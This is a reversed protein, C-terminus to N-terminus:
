VPDRQVTTDQFASLLELLLPRHTEYDDQDNQDDQETAATEIRASGIMVITAAEAKQQDDDQNDEQQSASLAPGLYSRWFGIRASIVPSNRMGTGMGHGMHAAVQSCWAALGLAKILEFIDQRV